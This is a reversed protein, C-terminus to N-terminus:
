GVIVIKGSLAPQVVVVAHNVGSPYVNDPITTMIPLSDTKWMTFTFDETNLGHELVFEEGFAPTFTKVVKRTHNAAVGSAIWNTGNYVLSEGENGSPVNVDLLDNLVSGSGVTIGGAIVIKGSSPTVLKIVIDNLGSPYVNEVFLAEIPSIDTKWASWVFKDTGLNHPKTFCIGDAPDFNIEQSALGSAITTGSGSQNQWELKTGNWILVQNLSPENDFDLKVVLGSNSRAGQDDLIIGSIASLIRAAVLHSNDNYERLLYSAGSPAGSTPTTLEIIQGNTSINISNDPSDLDIIGSLGEVSTQSRPLSDILVGSAQNFLGSLTIIQDGVVISISEDAAVLDVFGSLNNLAVVGSNALISDILNGSASSFLTNFQIVQGSTSIVLGDNLADLDIIGSLGEVSTVGAGGGTGILGSLTLIDECKQQLIAGSAPTFLANLQIVQGSTTITISGNPSDLDVIGSLGEISTVGGAGTSAGAVQVHILGGRMLAM